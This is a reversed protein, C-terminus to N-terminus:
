DNLRSRSRNFAFVKKTRAAGLLALGTMAAGVILGGAWEIDYLGLGTLAFLGLGAMLLLFRLPSSVARAATKVVAVTADAGAAVVKGSATAAAIAASKLRRLGVLRVLGALAALAAAAIGIGRANIAPGAREAEHDPAVIVHEIAVPEMPTAAIAPAIAMSAATLSAAALFATKMRAHTM